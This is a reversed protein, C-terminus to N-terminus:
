ISARMTPLVYSILTGDNMRGMPGGKSISLQRATTFKYNVFSSSSLLIRQTLGNRM